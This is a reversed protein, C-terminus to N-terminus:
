MEIKNEIKRSGKNLFNANLLKSYSKGYVWALNQQCM